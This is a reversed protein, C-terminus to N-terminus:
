SNRRIQIEPVKFFSVFWFWHGLYFVSDELVCTRNVQYKIIICQSIKDGVSNLIRHYFSSLLPSLFRESSASSPLIVGLPALEQTNMRTPLNKYFKKFDKDCITGEPIRDGLKANNGFIVLNSIHKPHIKIATLIRNDTIFASVPPLNM